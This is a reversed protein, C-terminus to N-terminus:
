AAHDRVHPLAEAAEPEVDPTGPADPWGESKMSDPRDFVGTLWLVGFVPVLWLAALLLGTARSVDAIGTLISVAGIYSAVAIVTVVAIKPALTPAPAGEVSTRSPRNWLDKKM